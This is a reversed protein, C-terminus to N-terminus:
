KRSMKSLDLETFEGNEAQKISEFLHNRNAENSLLYETEDQDRITIELHEGEFLQKIKKKFSENLEKNSINFTAEM